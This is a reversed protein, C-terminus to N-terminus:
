IMTNKSQNFHLEKIKLNCWSAYASYISLIKLFNDQLHYNQSGNHLVTPIIATGIKNTAM